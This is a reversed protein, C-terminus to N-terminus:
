MNCPNTHHQMNCLTTHHWMFFLMCTTQHWMNNSTVHKHSTVHLIAYLLYLLYLLYFLYEDLEPAKWGVSLWSFTTKGSRSLAAACTSVCTCRFDQWFFEWREREIVNYQRHRKCLVITRLGSPSAQSYRARQGVWRSQYPNRGQSNTHALLAFIVCHM